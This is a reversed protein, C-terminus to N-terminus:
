ADKEETKDELTKTTVAGAPSKAGERYEYFTEYSKRLYGGARVRVGNLVVGYIHTGLKTLMDRARQAIGYTNIGARVVLITGATRTSLVAADAVVLLPATDFIVHDFEESLSQILEAMQESGLLEVPNPPIPGSNMVFLGPRIEQLIDHWDAQGVLVNSLGASPSDPFLQHIAPQRFNADVVLVRKNGVALHNGLNLSVSTRGDEPMPSTVLITKLLEAPGSFMLNTRVQRFSECVITNPSTIFATRIDPIDEEVDDLHPVMGLMPLEVRRAVDSPAKISTDLLELLFSLGLGLVLGLFVGLPAFIKYKPFSPEHPKVAQRMFVIPQAANMLLGLDTLRSELQRIATTSSTIEDTINDMRSQLVNLDKLDKNAKTVQAALDLYNQEMQKYYTARGQKANEVAKVTVKNEEVDLRQKLAKIDSKLTKVSPHADGFREQRSALAIEMNALQQKLMMVNRDMDVMQKVEPLTALESDPVGQVMGMAMRARNFEERAELMRGVLAAQLAAITQPADTAETADDQKRLARLTESDRQHRARKDALERKFLQITEYREQNSIDKFDKVAAASIANVIEAIDSPNTGQMSVSIYETRPIVSINVEKLLKDVIDLDGGDSRADAFWTTHRIDDLAEEFVKQSMMAQARSQLVREIIDKGLLNTAIEMESAKPPNVALIAQAKYIPAYKLWLFAVLVSTISFFLVSSIILWKRRRLMRVFDKGTFSFGTAKASGGPAMPRGTGGGQRIDQPLQEHKPVMSM